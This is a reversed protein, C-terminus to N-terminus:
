PFFSQAALYTHTRRNAYPENIAYVNKHDVERQYIVAVFSTSGSTSARPLQKDVVLFHFFPIVDYVVPNPACIPCRQRRAIIKAKPIGESLM